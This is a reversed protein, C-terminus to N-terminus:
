ACSLMARFEAYNRGMAIQKMLQEVSNNDIPIRGDRVYVTLAQWHNRLYRLAPVIAGKIRGREFCRHIRGRDLAVMAVVREECM